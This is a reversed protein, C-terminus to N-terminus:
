VPAYREIENFKQISESVSFSEESHSEPVEVTVVHNLRIEIRELMYRQHNSLQEFVWMTEYVAGELRPGAPIAELYHSVMDSLVSISRAAQDAEGLMNKLTDRYLEVDNSM